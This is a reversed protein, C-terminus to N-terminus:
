KGEKKLYYLLMKKDHKTIKYGTDLIGGSTMAKSVYDMFNKYKKYEKHSIRKEKSKKKSEEKKDEIEIYNKIDEINEKLNHTPDLRILSYFNGVFSFVTEQNFGTARTLDECTFVKKKSTELIKLCKKASTKSLKM